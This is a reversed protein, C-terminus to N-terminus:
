TEMTRARNEPGVPIPNSHTSRLLLTSASLIVFIGGYYALRTGKPYVWIQGVVDQKVEPKHNVM